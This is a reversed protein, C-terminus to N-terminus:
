DHVNLLKKLHALESSLRGFTQWVESRKVEEGTLLHHLSCGFIEALAVYPEGRIAVGNEWDRYTSTPVNLLLAVQSAKLGKDVRLKRLRKGLSEM